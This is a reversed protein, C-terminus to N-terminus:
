EYLQSAAEDSAMMWDMSRRGDDTIDEVRRGQNSHVHTMELRFM